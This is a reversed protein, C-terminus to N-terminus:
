EHTPQDTYVLPWSIQCSACSPSTIVYPSTLLDKARKRDCVCGSSNLYPSDLISILKVALVTVLVDSWDDRTVMYWCSCLWCPKADNGSGQVVAAGAGGCNQRGYKTPGVTGAWSKGIFVIVLLPGTHFGKGIVLLACKSIRSAIREVLSSFLSWITLM